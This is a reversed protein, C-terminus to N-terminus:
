NHGLKSSWKLETKMQEPTFWGSLLEQSDENKKEIMRLVSSVFM